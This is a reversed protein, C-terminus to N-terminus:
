FRFGVAVGPGSINADGDKPLFHYNVEGFLGSNSEVGVFIKGGVSTKTESGNSDPDASTSKFMTSYVGLGLGAYPVISAGAKGFLSRASVGVGWASAKSTVDVLGGEDEVLPFSNTKKSEFFYDGYGSVIIPQTAKTKLFDYSVGVNFHSSGFFDKTDGDSVFEGGLRIAFPKVVKTTDDARASTAGFSTVLAAAAAAVVGSRVMLTDLRM